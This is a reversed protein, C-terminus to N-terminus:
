AYMDRMFQAKGLEIVGLSEAANETGHVYFRTAFSNDPFTELYVMAFKTFREPYARALGALELLREEASANAKWVPIPTVNNVAEM